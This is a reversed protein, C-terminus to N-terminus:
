ECGNLHEYSFVNRVSTVAFRDQKSREREEDGVFYIPAFKPQQGQPPILSEISHYIQGQVKFCPNWGTARIEHCGMSTMQFASNYARTNALFHQSLTHRGLLLDDFPQPPKLLTPLQVNGNVEACVLLRERARCLM